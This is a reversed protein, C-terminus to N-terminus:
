QFQIKVIQVHNYIKGEVAFGLYKNNLDPEVNNKLLKYNDDLNELFNM